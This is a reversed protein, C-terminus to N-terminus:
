RVNDCPPAPLPVYPTTFKSPDKVPVQLRDFPLARLVNVLPISCPRPKMTLTVTRAPQGFLAGQSRGPKMKGDQDLVWTRDQSVQTQLDLAGAREPQAPALTITFPQGFM